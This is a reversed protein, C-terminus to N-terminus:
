RYKKQGGGAITNLEDVMAPRRPYKSKLRAAVAVIQAKFQPMDKIVKKMKRVLDAYQNRASANDGALEFAPLYIALLEETFRKLFLSNYQLFRIFVM